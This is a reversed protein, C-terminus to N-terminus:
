IFPGEELVRPHDKPIKEWVRGVRIHEYVLKPSAVDIEDLVFVYFKNLCALVCLTTELCVKRVDQVNSRWVEHFKVCKRYVSHYIMYPGRIEHFVCIPVYGYM